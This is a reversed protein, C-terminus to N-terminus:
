QRSDVKKERNGNKPVKKKRKKKKPYIKVLKLDLDWPDILPM